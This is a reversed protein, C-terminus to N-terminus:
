EQWPEAPAGESGDRESGDRSTTGDGDPEPAPEAPARDREHDSAAVGRRAVRFGGTEARGSLERQPFPIKIDEEEFTQYVAHVVAARARWRRRASPNDIWFRLELDIASDGFGTPIVQPRPVSMIEDLDKIATMAIEEAREPAVSYDVGVSLRIRLRGKKTRNIVTSNGVVDNPVVVYEGDFNEIRTNVITIDTVIGEYDDVEIWDGVEFPRSFMLVFGSLAAGLTKQAALGLVIGLFGAGILLGGLDVGWYGLIMLGVAILLSFQLVRFIVETQHQDIRDSRESIEEVFEELLGIAVYAALLLIITVPVQFLTGWHDTLVDWSDAALDALLDGQGWLTLLALLGVFGVLLQYLVALYHASARFPLEEEIRRLAAGTQGSLVREDVFLEFQRVAYPVVLWAVAMTVLLVVASLALRGQFTTVGELSDFLTTVRVM